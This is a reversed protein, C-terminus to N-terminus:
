QGNQLLQELGKRLSVQPEYYFAKQAATIDMVSHLVEEPNLPIYRPEVKKGLIECMTDYLERVSTQIGTAINFTRGSKTDVKIAGLCGQVVDSASVFDRTQSGDGTMVPQEGSQLAHAFKTIVGSYSSNPNQRPGYVNSFRLVVTEFKGLDNTESAAREGVWKTRAYVGPPLQVADVESKPLKKNKNGYVAATSAFIARKVGARFAALFVDSTGDINIRDAEKRNAECEPVSAMAALHFVYDLNRGRMSKTLLARNRIDGNIIKIKSEIASLNEKRGTSFNDFVTVNYDQHVLAEVLHSGIFGAGGTVLVNAM